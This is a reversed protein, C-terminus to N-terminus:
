LTLPACFTPPNVAVTSMGVNETLRRDCCRKACLIAEMAAPQLSAMM